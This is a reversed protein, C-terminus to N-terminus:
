EMECLLSKIDEIATRERRVHDQEDAEDKLSRAVVDVYKSYARISTELWGLAAMSPAPARALALHVKSAGSPLEDVVLLRNAQVWGLEAQLSANLPLAGWAAPMDGLGQIRSSAAEPLPIPQDAPPEPEIPLPPYLRDLEIYAWERAEPRTMGAAHAEKIMGNKVEQLDRWRGERRLRDTVERACVRAGADPSVPASGTAPASETGAEGGQDNEMDTM